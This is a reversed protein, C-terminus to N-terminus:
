IAAAVLLLGNQAPDRLLVGEEREDAAVGAARVREVLAALADADPLVLTYYRLGTANPPPPPAGEGQWINTGIHHHYDGAAFFIATRSFPNNGKDFGLPIDLGLVEHYFHRTERLHAVHLHVHGVRTEPHLGQWAVPNELLPRFVVQPSLARNSQMMEDVTKPWAAQPLDWALEVGNGEADPLYIAHHTGHNSMGEIPTHTEAIRRLLQALEMQSPVLFATHYLGTTGRVQRAGRVQTLLLLDEGGAGLGASDERQWHLRFGLIDRYFSIQRALDAVTYHVHGPKTSAPITYQLPNGKNQPAPL